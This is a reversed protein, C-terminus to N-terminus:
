LPTAFLPARLSEPVEKSARCAVSRTFVGAWEKVFAEGEVDAVASAIASLAYHWHLLRRVFAVGRPDQNGLYKALAEIAEVSPRQSGTKWSSLESPTFGIENAHEANTRAPLVPDILGRLPDGRRAHEAWAPHADLLGSRCVREDFLVFLRTTADVAFYRLYARRRGRDRALEDWLILETWTMLSFGDISWDKEGIKLEPLPVLERVFLMFQLATLRCCWNRSFRGRFVRQSTKDRLMAVVESPLGRPGGFAELFVGILQGSTPLKSESVVTM